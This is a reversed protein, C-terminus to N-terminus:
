KVLEPNEYINGIVEREDEDVNAFSEMFSVDKNGNPNMRFACSWEVWVVVGENKIIDGEYIEKGNKDHLGTFQMIILNNIDRLYDERGIDTVIDDTWARLTLAFGMVKIEKNWARFKNERM